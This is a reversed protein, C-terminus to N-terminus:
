SQCIIRRSGSEMFYFIVAIITLRGLYELVELFAWRGLIYSTQEYIWEVFVFPIVWKHRVTESYERWSRKSKEARGM